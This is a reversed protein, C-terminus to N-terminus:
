WHVQAIDQELSAVHRTTGHLSLPLCVGGRLLETGSQRIELFHALPQSGRIKAMQETPRHSDRKRLVCPCRKLIRVPALVRGPQTREQQRSFVVYRLRNRNVIGDWLPYKPVCM